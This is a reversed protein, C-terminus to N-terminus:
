AARKAQAPRSASAAHASESRVESAAAAAPGGLLTLIAPLAMLSVFLCSAIGVGLVVGVSYLGRHAAVMMSGFGVMTTLSTLVVANMTSASLRFGQRQERFNHVIHVGNDVGIGLILPLVILNAPNLDIGALGMIGFMLLGGGVPPLMALLADRLNRYDLVAAIIGALGVYSLALLVPSLETRRAGLVLGGFVILVLPPLLVAWKKPPSLFDLLLVLFIMALAYLAATQYSERIQRSAEYNQLPIGTIEPDVSRVDRV